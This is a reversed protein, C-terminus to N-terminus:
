FINNNKNSYFKNKSIDTNRVAEMINGNFHNLVNELLLNEISKLNQRKDIILKALQDISSELEDDISDSLIGTFDQETILYDDERLLIIARNIVNELERINGPWSYKKLAEVAEPSIRVDKKNLERSYIDIFHSILVPLDELRERLPPIKIPVTEIRYYLDKRFLNNKILLKLDKNTATILQFDVNLKRNSGVQEVQRDQIVHLLRTQMDPKLEAIEDLFLTGHDALAIKGTKDSSAGTFSGKSYGFLESEILNEPIAGCNIKVFPGKNRSGMSHLLRAIMEKGTGTEGTLLVNANSDSVRSVIETVNKLSTDLGIVKKNFYVHDGSVNEYFSKLRSIEKKEEKHKRCEAIASDVITKLIGLRLPKELIKTILNKNIFEQLLDKEAYATLLIGYYYSNSKRSEILLELGSLGPMKYDVIVIDYYSNSIEKLALLPDSYTSLNYGSFYDRINELIIEEDDIVVIKYEKM